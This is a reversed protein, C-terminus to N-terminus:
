RSLEGRQNLMTLEVYKSGQHQKDSFSVKYNGLDYEKMTDLAKIVGERTPNKGARRIGEALVKANIYGELSAYSPRASPAHQALLDRYERILKLHDADPSPFVQSIGVGAVAPAGDQRILEDYNATSINFLQSKGGLERFQKIFAATPRTISIMMVADPNLKALATAAEKVDDSGKEYTATAVLQMDHAKLSRKAADLGATGFPDRQFMVGVKSIGLNSLLSVIKEVEDHYGARTHFLYPNFPDRTSLAGTYVGVLAIRSKDLQKSALLDTVNATGYFSMLAIAKDNEILQKANQATLASQYQDDKVVLKITQGNIGGNANLHDFYVKAGLALANGTEAAVGSLPSSEGIVLDANAQGMAVCLCGALLSKLVADIRM